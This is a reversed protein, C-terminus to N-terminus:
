WSCFYCDSLRAEQHHYSSPKRLHIRLHLFYVRLGRSLHKRRLPLLNHRHRDQPPCSRPNSITSLALCEKLICTSCIEATTTVTPCPATTTTCKKGALSLPTLALLTAFIPLSWM